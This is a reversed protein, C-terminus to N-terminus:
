KSRLALVRSKDIDNMSTNISNGGEYIKKSLLSFTEDGVILSLMGWGGNHRFLFARVCPIATYAV